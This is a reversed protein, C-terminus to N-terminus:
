SQATAPVDSAAEAAPASKAQEILYQQQLERNANKLDDIQMTLEGIKACNNTFQVQLQTVKSPAQDSM